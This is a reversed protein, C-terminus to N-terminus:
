TPQALQMFILRFKDLNNAAVGVATYLMTKTGVSYLSKSPRAVTFSIPIM